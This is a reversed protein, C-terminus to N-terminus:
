VNPANVTFEFEGSNIDVLQHEILDIAYNNSLNVYYHFDFVARQQIQGQYSTSIDQFNDCGAYGLYPQLL